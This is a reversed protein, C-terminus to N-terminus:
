SVSASDLGVVSFGPLIIADLHHEFRNKVRNRVDTPAMDLIDSDANEMTVPHLRVDPVIALFKDEEWVLTLQALTMATAVHIPDNLGSCQPVFEIEDHKDVEITAKQKAEAEAASAGPQERRRRHAEAEADRMEPDDRYRSTILLDLGGNLARALNSPSFKAGRNGGYGGYGGGGYGGRNGGFGGYGGYQATALCCLAALVLAALLLTRSSMM